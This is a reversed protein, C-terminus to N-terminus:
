RAESVVAPRIVYIQDAVVMFGLEAAREREGPANIIFVAFIAGFVASTIAVILVVAGDM